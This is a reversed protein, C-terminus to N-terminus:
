GDASIPHPPLITEEDLVREQEGTRLNFRRVCKWDGGYYIPREPQGKMLESPYWSKPAPERFRMENYFLYPADWSCIADQQSELPHCVSVPRYLEWPLQRYYLRRVEMGEELRLSTVAVLSGAARSYLLANISSPGSIGIHEWPSIPKEPKM